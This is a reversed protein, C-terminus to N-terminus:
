HQFRFLFVDMIWSLVRVSYDVNFWVFDLRMVYDTRTAGSRLQRLFEDLCIDWWCVRWGRKITATRVFVPGWIDLEKQKEAAPLSEKIRTDLMRGLNVGWPFIQTFVCERERERGTLANRQTHWNQNGKCYVKENIGSLNERWEDRFSYKFLHLSICQVSPPYEFSVVRSWCFGNWSSLELCTHRRPLNDSIILWRVRECAM